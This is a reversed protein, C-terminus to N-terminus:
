NQDNPIETVACGMEVQAQYLAHLFQPSNVLSARTEKSNNQFSEKMKVLIAYIDETDYSLLEKTTEELTAM